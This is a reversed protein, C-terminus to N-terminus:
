ASAPIPKGEIEEIRARVADPVPVSKQAAYDFAVLTSDGEAVIARLRESIIRHQMTMSSRRGFGSIRAGVHVTDPYNLQKLYRCSIAALIPDVSSGAASDSLGIGDAYAIRASEFWRFYVTNNVHGFADQDGWQVPLTIWVPFGQRLKEIESDM